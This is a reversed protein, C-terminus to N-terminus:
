RRVNADPCQGTGREPQRPYRLLLRKPRRPFDREGQVQLRNFPASARYGDYITALSGSNNSIVCNEIVGTMDMHPIGGAADAATMIASGGGAGTVRNDVFSCATVNLHGGLVTLGGGLFGASNGAFASNTITAGSHRVLEFGGGFQSAHCNEVICRDANLAIFDGTLAAGTGNGLDDHTALDAFVVRTLNVATRNTELTGNQNVGQGYMSHLDGAVFIGGGQRASPVDGGPGRILCDTVTLKASPRNITGWGTSADPNDDSLVFISGGFGDPGSAGTAQNNQFICGQFQNDARYGAVAGGQKASNNIFRCNYFRGRTQDELQVAGGATPATLTGNPDRLVVNNTFLCNSVTLDMVPTTVPNQWPGYVYIAGGVYGAQNNEFRSTDIQITSSNGHLAGGASFESHGPVNVRNGTFQSDRVYVRSQDASFGGAFHKSTNNLWTCSQFSVTSFAIWLAGGGTSSANAANNRFTCSVFTANAHVVTLGGGIFNETSVGDAFTLGEFSLPPGGTAPNAFRLIDHTGQGSLVVTAGVTARITFGKGFGASDINWGGPPAPYTGEALEIIGRDPVAAIAAQLSLQDAPVRVIQQAWSAAPFLLAVAVSIRLTARSLARRRSQRQFM